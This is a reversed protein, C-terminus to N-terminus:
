SVLIMMSPHLPAFSVLCLLSFLLFTRINPPFFLAKNDGLAVHKNQFPLSFMLDIDERKRGGGRWEM